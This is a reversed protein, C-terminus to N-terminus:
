NSPILINASSTILQGTETFARLLFYENQEPGVGDSVATLNITQIQVNTTTIFVNVSSNGNLTIDTGPLANPGADETETVRVVVNTNLFQGGISVLSFQRTQGESLSVPTGYAILLGTDTDIITFPQRAVEPGNASNIRVVLNAAKNGEPRSDRIVTGTLVANGNAQVLINGSPFAPLNQYEPSAYFTAEFDEITTTQNVLNGAISNVLNSDDPYRGFYRLYLRNIIEGYQSGNIKTDPNEASIVNADTVSRYSGINGVVFDTPGQDPMSWYLTTGQSLQTDSITFTLVNGEQPTVESAFTTYIPTAIQKTFAVAGSANSTITGTLLGDAFDAGVIAGAGVINATIVQSNAVVPGTISGTRLKVIFTKSM